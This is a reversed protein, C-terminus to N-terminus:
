SAAGGARRSAIAQLIAWVGEAATAAVRCVEEADTAELADPRAVNTVVSVASVALGLRRAAVVEPVTSMGVADAGLRRLMRYEARTEYSPGLLYAYVGARATVGAGRTADLALEVLADDYSCAAWGRSVTQDGRACELEAAWPRAVFDLHDNVVVLEGGRMDPRLGGAANTVLLTTVGLAALLEVGRTLSEDAVGEYAHVRGQLAVIPTGAISGFVIRGAHGTATSSDLWGTAAADISRARDLREALGGLGTGLVVGITAREGGEALLRAAADRAEPRPRCAEQARADRSAVM